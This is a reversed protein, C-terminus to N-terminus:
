YIYFTLFSKVLSEYLVLLFQKTMVSHVKSNKSLEHLAVSSVPNLLPRWIFGHIIKVSSEVLNSLANKSEKLHWAHM